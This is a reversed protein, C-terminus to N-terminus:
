SLGTLPGAACYDPNGFQTLETHGMAHAIALLLRNHAVGGADVMRGGTFGLGGGLFVWPIDNHSHSNGEGLENTWLITTHDLMSGNGGPEPIDALRRVLYAVEGAYWANIRTLKEQADSDANPKHSLDHQGEEVGIWKMHAQGVSNTFQLTAIRSFDAQMSAVLLDIQMRSIKPMQDNQEVVGEELVPVPHDATKRFGALQHEFNRVLDTHHELLRRDEPPLSAALTRLDDRVDDLVSQLSERDKTQGYLRDFMQYPDDIPTVPQNPGAYVMRTWIDSKNPVLVGFELSGFRTLTAPDKQMFSRIEQDISRGSAWGAPTDSGGQINGPFLEIGTLLCGIGRMHGDGDGKIKNHVGKVLLLQDRFPELPALIAPLPAPQEVPPPTAFAGPHNPWFQQKVIGDPSFVIILRQRPQPTSAALSPLNGLFPLTAPAIGLRRLLDRRTLLPTTTM